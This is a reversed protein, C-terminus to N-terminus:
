GGGIFMKVLNIGLALLKAAICVILVIASVNLATVVFNYLYPPLWLFLRHTFAFINSIFEIM